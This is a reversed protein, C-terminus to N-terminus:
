LMLPWTTVVLTTAWIMAPLFPWLIWFSAAILGTVFLIAFITRVLDRAGEAVPTPGEIAESPRVGQIQSLGQSQPIEARM